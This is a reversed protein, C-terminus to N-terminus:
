KKGLRAEVDKIFEEAAHKASWAEPSVAAIKGSLLIKRLGAVDGAHFLNTEPLMTATSGAEYTGVVKLGEEIAESM